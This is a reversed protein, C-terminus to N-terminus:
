AEARDSRSSKSPTRKLAVYANNTGPRMTELMVPSNKWAVSMPRGATASQAYQCVTFASASGGNESCCGHVSGEFGAVALHEPADQIGLAPLVRLDVTRCEPECRGVGDEGDSRPAAIGEAEQQIVRLIHDGEVKVWALIMKQLQFHGRHPGQRVTIQQAEEAHMFVMVPPLGVSPEARLQRLFSECEPVPPPSFHAAADQM